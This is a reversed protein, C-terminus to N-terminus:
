AASAVLSTPLVGLLVQRIQEPRFPKRVYGAVGAEQLQKVRSAMAESSVIVVRTPLADDARVAQAVEMGGVRPMNLDLFCVDFPRGEAAGGRLAELAAAGDPAEALEAPIGSLTVSRRVMARTMASDDVILIRAPTAGADVGVPQPTAPLEAFPDSM